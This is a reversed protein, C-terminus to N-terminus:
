FSAVREFLYEHVKTFIFNLRIHLTTKSKQAQSSFVM